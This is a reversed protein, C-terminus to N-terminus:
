ELSSLIAALLDYEFWTKLLLTKITKWSTQVLRSVRRVRGIRHIMQKVSVNSNLDIYASLGPLDVGEDLARV